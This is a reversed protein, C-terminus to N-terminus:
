EGTVRSYVVAAGIGLVPIGLLVTAYWRLGVRWRVLRSLLDRVGARGETVATVVLASVSPAYVAILFLPHATSMEGFLAVLWGHFLVLCAGIGWTIAFTLLFFALLPHRRM